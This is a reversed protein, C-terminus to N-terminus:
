VEYSLMLSVLYPKLPRVETMLVGYSNSCWYSIHQFSKIESFFKKLSKRTLFPRLFMSREWVLDKQHFYLWHSDRSNSTFHQHDGYITADSASPINFIIEFMIWSVVFHDYKPICVQRGSPLYTLINIKWKIYLAWAKILLASQKWIVITDQMVVTPILPEPCRSWLISFNVPFPSKKSFIVLFHYYAPM